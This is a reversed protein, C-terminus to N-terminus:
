KHFNLIITLAKEACAYVVKEFKRYRMKQEDFDVVIASNQSKPYELAEFDDTQTLGMQSLLDLVGISVAKKLQSIEDPTGELGLNVLTGKSVRIDIVGDEFDNVPIFTVKTKLNKNKRRIFLYKNRKDNEEDTESKESNAKIGDLDPKYRAYLKNLANKGSELHSSTQRSIKYALLFVAITVVLGVLDKTADLLNETSYGKFHLNIVIALVGIGAFLVSITQEKKENM